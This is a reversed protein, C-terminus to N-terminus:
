AAQVASFNGGRPLTLRLAPRQANTSVHPIYRLVSGPITADDLKLTINTTDATGTTMSFDILTCNEPLKYFTLSGTGAAGNPNFTVAAAAVHKRLVSRM